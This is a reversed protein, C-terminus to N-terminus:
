QLELSISVKISVLKREPALKQLNTAPVKNNPPKIEQQVHSQNVIQQVLKSQIYKDADILM